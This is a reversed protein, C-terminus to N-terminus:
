FRALVLHPPVSFFLTSTQARELEQIRADTRTLEAGVVAMVISGVVGLIVGLGALGAAAVLVWVGSEGVANVFALTLGASVLGAVTFAGGFILLSGGTDFKPRNARLAALEGKGEFSSPSGRVEPSARALLAGCFKEERTGEEGHSSLVLAMVLASSFM